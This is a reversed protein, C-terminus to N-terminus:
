GGQTVNEPNRNTKHRAILEIGQEAMVEALGDSDYAKDGILCEPLVGTFTFDFLGQVL